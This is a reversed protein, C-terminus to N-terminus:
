RLLPYGVGIIGWDKLDPFKAQVARVYDPINAAAGAPPNQGFWAGLSQQKEPTNPPYRRDM